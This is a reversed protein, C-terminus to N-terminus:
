DTSFAYQRDHRVGLCGSRGWSESQHMGNCGNRGPRREAVEMAHTGCNDNSGHLVAGCLATVVRQIEVEATVVVAGVATAAATTGGGGLPPAAGGIAM